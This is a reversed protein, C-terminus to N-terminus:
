KRAETHPFYKPASGEVQNKTEDCEVRSANEHNTTDTEHTQGTRRDAQECPRVKLLVHRAGAKASRRCVEVMPLGSLVLDVLGQAM